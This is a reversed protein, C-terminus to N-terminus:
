VRRPLPIDRYDKYGATGNLYLYSNPDKELGIHPHQRKWRRKYYLPIILLCLLLTCLHSGIVAGILQLLSYYHVGSHRQIELFTLSTVDEPKGSNLIDGLKNSDDIYDSFRNDNIVTNLLKNDDKNTKEHKLKNTHNHDIVKTTSTQTSTHLTTKTHRHHPKDIKNNHSKQSSLGPWSINLTLTANGAENFALCIYMGSLDEHPSKPSISLVGENLRVDDGLPALYKHSEGNPQVWFLTPAPDGFASCRLYGIGGDFIADINGFVPKQCRFDFLSIANFYKARLRPPTRCSPMIAAVDSTGSSFITFNKDFFEKLWMMECNCHLPNSGIQLFSLKKIIELMSKDLKDIENGNVWLKELSNKLPEFVQPNITKLSCDQLYLGQTHLGAFSKSNLEINRNGNLFLHQLRLGKFTYDTITGIRNNSLDLWILNQLDSFTGEEILEINCGNLYLHQLDSFDTFNAKSLTTYKFHNENLMIQVSNKPIGIPIHRLGKRSCHFNRNLCFCKDPCEGKCFDFLFVLITYILIWIRFESFVSNISLVM